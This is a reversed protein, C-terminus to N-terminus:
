GNKKRRIRQIRELDSKTYYRCQSKDRKPKPLKGNKELQFLWKKSIGLIKVAEGSLYFEKKKIQKKDLIEKCEETLGCGHCRQIFYRKGRKFWETGEFMQHSCDKKNSKKLVEIVKTTM